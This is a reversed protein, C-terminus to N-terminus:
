APCFQSTTKLQNEFHNPSQYGLASHRREANYYAIHHSIELKAEALGPFHGGDLLEAKFRSWFSEAHANDYCNGRRSMSQQAGNRALLDKFRTATYQSGQDSHVVLGAPPRRVALARRLAESVLAEPMTDRVDWGVIKRSCRDLWVALYLWGGGQRPLYTIDGVWVRNPATPAPQGLLRNPAARVAPDSDTTRPVFSRPQQARLGHAKLVRRVRWRGVAHGQAQVEARLRRTGYRQSHDAFAERVAVQWAPEVAPMQRRRQWAYYAAPAVHLVHCLQRVPVQAQRQAIHQYVSM